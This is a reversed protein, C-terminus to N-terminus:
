LSFKKIAAKVTAGDAAFRLLLLRVFHRAHSKLINAQLHALMQQYAPDAPNIGKADLNVAMTLIFFHNDIFPQFLPEFYAPDKGSDIGLILYKYRRSRIKLM